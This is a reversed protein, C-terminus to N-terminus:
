IDCFGWVGSGENCCNWKKAAHIWRDMMAAACHKITGFKTNHTIQDTPTATPTLTPAPPSPTPEPGPSSYMGRPTPTPYSTPTQAADVALLLGFVFRRLM